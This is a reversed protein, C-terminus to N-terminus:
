SQVNINSLLAVMDSLARFIPLATEPLIYFVSHFSSLCLRPLIPLFEQLIVEGKCWKEFECLWTTYMFKLISRLKELCSYCSFDCYLSTIIIDENIVKSDPMEQKLQKVWHIRLPIHLLSLNQQLGPLGHDFCRHQFMEAQQPFTLGVALRERGWYRFLIGSKNASLM